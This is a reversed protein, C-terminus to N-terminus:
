RQLALEYRSVSVAPGPEDRGGPPGTV